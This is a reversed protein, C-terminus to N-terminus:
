PVYYNGIAIFMEDETTVGGRLPCADCVSGPCNADNGGCLLGKNVGGMCAVTSDACPGGIPLDGTAEPSGSQTKVKDPDGIGNGFGNDFLSCFKITRDNVSGNFSLAVPSFQSPHRAM